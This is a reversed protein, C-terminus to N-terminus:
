ALVAAVSEDFARTHRDIDDRTTGPAVLAMNHFPTILVGRNLAALHLYRELLADVSAAAEGGNRPPTARFWYEARCGLRNVHWPLRRERIVGEVGDAWRDAMAITAAFTDDTLVQELTARM